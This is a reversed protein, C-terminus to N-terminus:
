WRPPDRERRASARVGATAKGQRAQRAPRSNSKLLTSAPKAEAACRKVQPASVTPPTHGPYVGAKAGLLLVNGSRAMVEEHHSTRVTRAQVFAVGSWAVDGHDM